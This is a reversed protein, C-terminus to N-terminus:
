EAAMGEIGGPMPAAGPDAMTPDVPQGDIPAPPAPGAVPPPSAAAAAEELLDQCEDIFQGLLELRDLPAGNMEAEQYRLSARKMALEVDMRPHPGLYDGKELIMYIRQDILEVPANDMDLEGQLDPIDMLKKAQTMDIYGGKALEDVMAQRGGPDQPLSSSSGVRIVFEDDDGAIDEFGIREINKDGVWTVQFDGQQEYLDYAAELTREALQLFFDEYQRQVTVFRQSEINNYVLMSRGSGSLGAPMESRAGLQSIGTVAYAQEILWKLHDLLQNSVSDNTVFDPKVGTYRIMTGRFDNNIHADVIKSGNELLVKLNGGHYMGKQVAQVLSNIESQIGTLEQAIGTGFWGLPPESWRVCAFPPREHVYKRDALTANETSIVHLGDKADPGSKLHWAETVLVQDATVNRSYYKADATNADDIDRRKSPFLEKLVLRDVTRIQYYSRPESFLSETEDIVIESPNVREYRIKGHEQLVKVFGTGFIGGDKFSRPGLAYANNGHFCAEVFKQRAKARQQMEWNASSTLYNVAPRTKTILSTAADICSRVVNIALRPGRDFLSTDLSSRDLMAGALGSEARNAYMKLHHANMGRRYSQRSQLGDVVAAIAEHRQGKPQNWWRLDEPAGSGYHGSM